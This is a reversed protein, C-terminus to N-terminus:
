TKYATFIGQQVTQPAGRVATIRAAEYAPQGVLSIHDLAARTIRRHRRGPDWQVGDRAAAFGASVGLLDLDVLELCEDAERVRALTITGTLGQESWPDLRLARGIPRSPMHDRNVRVKAADVGHFAGHAFTEVYSRGREHITAPSEAPAVILDLERRARRIDGVTASRIEVHRDTVTAEPAPTSLKPQKGQIVLPTGRRARDYAAAQKLVAHDRDQYVTKAAASRLDGPYARIPGLGVSAPERTIAVAELAIDAGGPLHTVSPSYYWPGEGVQSGDIECVAIIKDDRTREAFKLEGLVPGHELDCPVRPALVSRYELSSLASFRREVDFNRGPGHYPVTVLHQQFGLSDAVVGVITIV